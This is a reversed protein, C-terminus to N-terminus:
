RLGYEPEERPKREKFDQSALSSDVGGPAVALCSHWKFVPGCTRRNAPSNRQRHHVAEKSCHQKVRELKNEPSILLLLPCRHNPPIESCSPPMSGERPHPLPGRDEGPLRIHVYHCTALQFGIVPFTFRFPIAPPPHTHTLSSERHPKPLPCLAHSDLPGRGVARADSGTQTM